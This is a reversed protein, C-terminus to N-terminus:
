QLREVKMMRRIGDVYLRYGGFSGREIRAKYERDKALRQREPTKETERWVQGDAMRFTGLGDGGYTASTIQVDIAAQEPDDRKARVQEAGLAETPVAAPAAPPPGGLARELCAIHAQPDTSHQSRCRSVPDDAATAGISVCMALWFLSRIM